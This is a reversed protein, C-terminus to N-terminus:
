KTMWKKNKIWEQEEKPLKDLPISFKTGDEKVLNVSGSLVGSFKARIQAGKPDTWTRWRAAEADAKQKTEKAKEAELKAQRKENMKEIAEEIPKMNVRRLVHNEDALYVVTKDPFFEGNVTRAKEDKILFEPGVNRKKGIVQRLKVGGAPVLSMPIETKQLHIGKADIRTEWEKMDIDLRGIGGKDGLKLIPVPFVSKDSLQRKKSAEIYEEILEKDPTIEDNVYANKQTAASPKTEEGFCRGSILGALTLACATVFRTTM